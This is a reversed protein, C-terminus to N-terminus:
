KISYSNFITDLVSGSPFLGNLPRPIKNEMPITPTTTAGDFMIKALFLAFFDIPRAAATFSECFLEM